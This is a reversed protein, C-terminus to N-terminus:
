FEKPLHENTLAEEYTAVGREEGARLAKLATSNGFLKAVGEVAKAFVGWTQSRQSPKGGLDRVYQRLRNAAQRHEGHLRRLDDAGPENGVQELAQQYTETDALEGQLMDNIIHTASTSLIM